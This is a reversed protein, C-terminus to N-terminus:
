KFFFFNEKNLPFLLYLLDRCFLSSPSSFRYFMSFYDSKRKFIRCKTKCDSDATGGPTEMARTRAPLPPEFPWRFAWQSVEQCITVLCVFEQSALWLGTGDSPAGIHDCTFIILEVERQWKRETLAAVVREEAEERKTEVDGSTSRTYTCGM